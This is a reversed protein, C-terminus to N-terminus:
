MGQPKQAPASFGDKLGILAQYDKAQLSELVSNHFNQYVFTMSGDLLLRLQMKLRNEEGNNFRNDWEIVMEGSGHALGDKFIVSDRDTPPM